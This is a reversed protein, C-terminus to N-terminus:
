GEDVTIEEEAITITISMGSVVDDGPKKSQNIITGPEYSNDQVYIIDKITINYKECWAKIDSLTYSGNTFDPYTGGINPIHLVVTDGPKVKTGVEPEQKIIKNEEYKTVDDVEDNEIVVFLNNVKELIAKVGNYEQGVYDELEFTKSGQSVYITIESGKKVTRGYSPDTKVVDGKDVTESQAYKNEASVKLGVKNLESVAVNISKGSVDPVKIEGSGPLFLLLGVVTAAIVALGAFVAGLVILVKNEKKKEIENQDIKKVKVESEKTDVNNDTIKKFEMTKEIAKQLITEMVKARKAEYVAQGEKDRWGHEEGFLNARLAGIQEDIIELEDSNIQSAIDKYFTLADLLVKMKKKEM